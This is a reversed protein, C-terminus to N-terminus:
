TKDTKAMGKGVIIKLKIGTLEVAAPAEIEKEDDAVIKIKASKEQNIFIKQSLFVSPSVPKKVLLGTSRPQITAQLIEGNELLRNSITISSQTQPRIKYNDCELVVDRGHVSAQYLFYRNNIKGLSVQRILRNSLIYCAGVADYPIGFNKAIECPEGQPIIGLAVEPFKALTDVVQGVLKDTGVVIINKVGRKVEDRIIETPSNLVSLRFIKGNIGLDTLLTEIANLSRFHKENSLFSDYLYSYM